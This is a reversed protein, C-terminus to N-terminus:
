IMNAQRVFCLLQESWLMAGIRRAVYVNEWFTQEDLTIRSPSSALRFCLKWVVVYIYGRVMHMDVLSVRSTEARPLCLVILLAADVHLAELLQVGLEDAVRVLRDAGDVQEARQLLDVLVEALWCACRGRGLWVWWQCWSGGSGGPPVSWWVGVM